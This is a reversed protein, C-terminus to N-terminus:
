YPYLNPYLRKFQSKEEKKNSNNVTKLNGKMYQRLQRIKTMTYTEIM